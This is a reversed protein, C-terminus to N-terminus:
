EVTLHVPITLSETVLEGADDHAMGIRLTANPYDGAAPAGEQSGTITLATDSDAVCVVDVPEGDPTPRLMALEVYWGAESDRFGEGTASWADGYTFTESQGEDTLTMVKVQGDETEAIPTPTYEGEVDVECAYRDLNDDAGRTKLVLNYRGPQIDANPLTCYWVNKTDHTDVQIDCVKETDALNWLELSEGEGGYTMNVGELQFQRGIELVKDRSLRGTPTYLAARDIRADSSAVPVRAEIKEFERRQADSFVFDLYISGDAPLTFANSASGGCRTAFTGFATSITVAGYQGALDVLVGKFSNLALECETVTGRNLEAQAIVCLQAANVHREAEFSFLYPAKDSTATANAYTAGLLESSAASVVNDNRYTSVEIKRSM